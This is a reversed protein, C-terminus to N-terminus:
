YIRLRKFRLCQSLGSMYSSLLQLQTVELDFEAKLMGKLRAATLSDLGYGSLPINEEIEDVPLSLLKACAARITGEYSTGAVASDNEDKAM